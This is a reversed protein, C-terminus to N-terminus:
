PAELVKLKAGTGSSILTDRMVLITVGPALVSEAARRFGDPV